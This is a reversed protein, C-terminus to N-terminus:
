DTIVMYGNRVSQFSGLCGSMDRIRFLDEDYLEYENFHFAGPELSITKYTHFAADLFDIHRVEKTANYFPFAMRYSGFNEEYKSSKPKTNCDFSLFPVLGNEQFFHEASIPKREHLLWKLKLLLILSTARIQTVDWANEVLLTNGYSLLVRNRFQNSTILKEFEQIAEEQDLSTFDYDETYIVNKTIDESDELTIDEWKEQSRFLRNLGKLDPILAIYRVPLKEENEM